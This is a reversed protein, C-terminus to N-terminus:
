RGFAPDVFLSLDEKFRGRSREMPRQDHALPVRWTACLRGVGISEVSFRVILVREKEAGVQCERGYRM